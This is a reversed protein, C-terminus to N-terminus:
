QNDISKKDKFQNNRRKNRKLWIMEDMAIATEYPSNEVYEKQQLDLREIDGFIQTYDVKRVSIIQGRGKAKVIAQHHGSALFHLMIISGSNRLRVEYTNEIGKM